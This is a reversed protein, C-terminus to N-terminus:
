SKSTVALGVEMPILEAGNSCRGRVCWMIINVIMTIVLLFLLLWEQTFSDRAEAVKAITLQSTRVRLQTEVENFDEGSLFEFSMIQFSLKRSVM